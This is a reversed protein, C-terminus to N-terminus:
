RRLRPVLLAGLAVVLCAWAFVDGGRVYPTTVSVAVVHDTVVAPAGPPASAVVIGRPDVIATVGSNTARLLFRRTEVARLLTARFHQETAAHGGFWDDNSLNVLLDAGARSLARATSAYIGEWCILIGARVGAVDFLTATDGASYDDLVGLSRQLAAPLLWTSTEGFPVLHMKDYTALLTGAVASV